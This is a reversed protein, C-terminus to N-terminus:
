HSALRAILAQQATLVDPAGSTRKLAQAGTACLEARAPEAFAEMGVGTLMTYARRLQERADRTRRQRRLWEGYVLQARGLEVRLRTRGLYDYTLLDGPRSAPDREDRYRSQLDHIPAARRGQHYPRAGDQGHSAAIGAPHRPRRHGGRGM